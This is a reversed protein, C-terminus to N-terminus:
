GGLLGKLFDDVEEQSMGVKFNSSLIESALADPNDDAAPTDTMPETVADVSTEIGIDGLPVEAESSVDNFSNAINESLPENEEAKLREVERFYAESEAITKYAYFPHEQTIPRYNRMDYTGRKIVKEHGLRTLYLVREEDADM